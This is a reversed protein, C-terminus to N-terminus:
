KSRTAESDNLLQAFIGCPFGKCQADSITDSGASGTKVEYSIWRSIDRAKRTRLCELDSNHLCPDSQLSYPRSQNGQTNRRSRYAAMSRRITYKGRLPGALAGPLKRATSYKLLLDLQQTAIDMLAASRRSPQRQLDQQGASDATISPWCPRMAFTTCTMTVTDEVPELIMDVSSDQQPGLQCAHLTRVNNKTEEKQEKCCSRASLVHTLSRVRVCESQM